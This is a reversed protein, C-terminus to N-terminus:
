FEMGTCTYSSPDFSSLAVALLSGRSVSFRVARLLSRLIPWTWVVMCRICACGPDTCLAKYPRLGTM